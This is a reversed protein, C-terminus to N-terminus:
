RGGAGSDSAPPQVPSVSLESTPEVSEVVIRPNPQQGPAAVLGTITVKDGALDGTYQQPTKEGTPTTAYTVMAYDVTVGGTLVAKDGKDLMELRRAKGNAKFDGKSQGFTVNGEALASELLNGGKEKPLDITIKDATLLFGAEASTAKSSRGKLVVRDVGGVAAPLPAKKANSAPQSLYITIEDATFDVKERILTVRASGSFVIRNAAEDWEWKVASSKVFGEINLTSLASAAASVALIAPVFILIALKRM